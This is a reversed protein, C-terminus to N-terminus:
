INAFINESGTDEGSAREAEVVETRGDAHGVVLLDCIGCFLGTEVVGPVGNLAGDLAVPDAIRGLSLDLILHGGDTHFLQGDRERLSMGRESVDAGALVDAIAARTAGLGFPVVEVPLPFVGLCAVRKSADAVAIMRKSASAVIKERLLAGGGGKILNLATDAEDAGDITLDPRTEGDLDELPIGQERALTASAESTPVGIVRLGERVRSGLERIMHAATSGTGLGVVMGEEVFDCARIGAARKATETPEDTM